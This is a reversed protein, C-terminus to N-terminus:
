LSFTGVFSTSKELTKSYNLTHLLNFSFLGDWRTQAFCLYLNLPLLYWCFMVIM